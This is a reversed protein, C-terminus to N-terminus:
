NEEEWEMKAKIRKMSLYADKMVLYLFTEFDKQDRIMGEFNYHLKYNVANHGEKTELYYLTLHLDGSWFNQKSSEFEQAYIDRRSSKRFISDVSSVFCYNCSKCKYKQKETKKVLGNFIIDNSECNPCYQFKIANKKIEEKYKKHKLQFEISEEYPDMEQAQTNTHKDTSNTNM